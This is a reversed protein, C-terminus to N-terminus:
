TLSGAEGPAAVDIGAKSLVRSGAPISRTVLAGAGIFADDGVTIAGLLTAGAGIFVRDGIVPMQEVRDESLSGLTVGHLLLADAGIRAYGGVVLGVGHSVRLGPGIEARPSLDAGTLLLGLRAFLPGFVPIRRRKFWRALRYFVVAQFGNDFLFADVAHWPFRGTSKHRLRGLDRRLDAFM